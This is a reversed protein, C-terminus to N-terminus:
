AGPSPVPSSFWWENGWADKVGGRCLGDGADAPTRVNTAGAAVARRHAAPADDVYLHLMAPFVSRADPQEGLMLVGDAIRVEAHALRGEADLVEFSLRGGIGQEVFRILGRADHAVVYPALKPSRTMEM